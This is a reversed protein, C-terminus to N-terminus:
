IREIYTVRGNEITILMTANDVLSGSIYSIDVKFTMKASDTTDGKISKVEMKPEAGVFGTYEYNSFYKAYLDNSLVLKLSGKYKNYTEENHVLLVGLSEKAMTSGYNFDSLISSTPVKKTCGASSLMGVVLLAISLSKLAFKGSKTAITM